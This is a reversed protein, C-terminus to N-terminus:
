GNFGSITSKGRKVDHLESELVRIRNRLVKQEEMSAQLEKTLVTLSTNQQNTISEIQEEFGGKIDEM